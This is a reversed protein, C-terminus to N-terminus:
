RAELGAVVLRCLREGVEVQAAHEARMREGGAELEAMLGELGAGAIGSRVCGAGVGVARRARLRTAAQRRLVGGVEVAVDGAHVGAGAALPALLEGGAEGRAVFM